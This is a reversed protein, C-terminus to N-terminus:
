KLPVFKSSKTAGIGPASHKVAKRTMAFEGLRHGIMEPKIEVSMFDLGNYIGIKVGVLDPTILFDREHTKVFKKGAKIELALKKENQKFGRKVKRRLRADLLKAFEEFSLKQLAELELGRYMFKKAM